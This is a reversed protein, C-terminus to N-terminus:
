EESIEQAVWDDLENLQKLISELSREIAACGEKKTSPLEIWQRFSDLDDTIFGIHMMADFLARHALQKNSIGTGPIPASNNYKDPMILGRREELSEIYKQILKSGDHSRMMAHLQINSAYPKDVM